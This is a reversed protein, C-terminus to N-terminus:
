EHLKNLKLKADKNIKAILIKEDFLELAENYFKINMGLYAQLLSIKKKFYKIMDNDFQINKRLINNLSNLENYITQKTISSIKNDNKQIFKYINKLELIIREKQTLVQGNITYIKDELENLKKQTNSEKLNYNVYFLKYIKYLNMYLQQNDNDIDKIIALMVNEDVNM